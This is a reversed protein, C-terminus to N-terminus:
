QTPQTQNQVQVETSRLNYFFSLSSNRLIPFLSFVYQDLVDGVTAINSKPLVVVDYPELYLDGGGTEADTRLDRRIVLGEAAEGRRLVLVTTLEASRKYGGVQILAQRLTMNRRYALAGPKDVEGGVFVQMPQFTRLVVVPTAKGLDARFEREGSVYVPLTATHLIV